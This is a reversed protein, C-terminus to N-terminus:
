DQGKLTVAGSIDGVPWGAKGKFSFGRDLQDSLRSLAFVLEGADGAKALALVDQAVNVLIQQNAYLAKLASLVDNIGPDTPPVPSPGPDVPPPPPQVGGGAPKPPAYVNQDGPLIEGKGSARFSYGNAGAGPIFDWFRREPMLVAVDDSQPRGGGGNKIHWRADPRANYVPHGWHVIGVIRAWQENREDRTSTAGFNMRETDHVRQALAVFEDLEM